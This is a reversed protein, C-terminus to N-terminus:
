MMMMNRINIPEGVLSDEEHMRQLVENLTEIQRGTILTLVSDSTNVVRNEGMCQMCRIWCKMQLLELDLKRKIYWILPEPYSIIAKRIKPLRLLIKPGEDMMDTITKAWTRKQEADLGCAEMLNREPIMYYPLHIKLIATRLQELGKRLWYFLSCNEDFQAIPNNEALWFVINKVAYSTIEKKIPKLVDKIVMKLIVYIYIQIDNLSSVLEIDATNFCIRWEVHKYESGKFGVPTVFAGMTVVKQVIDPPPWHRSREAWRSLICPCQCRVAFVIDTHMPGYSSPTSPGAREHRVEDDELQIQDRMNVILDSSLLIHGKEDLCMVDRLKPSFKSGRELLNLRCHGHYCDSTDLTFVITFMPLTDTNVCDELCILGELVFMQDLDNEYISTLGEAKSGTTIVIAGRSRLNVVEDMERYVDRRAQRIHSGYGLCNM